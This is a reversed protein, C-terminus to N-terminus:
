EAPMMLLVDSTFLPVLILRRGADWGLDAPAPLGDAVTSITGDPAVRYIASGEWSSVILDGSETELLGDLGGTPLEAVDNREGDEDLVYVVNSGFTAVVAGDYAMSDLVGNPRDLDDTAITTLEGEASLLYVAASGTDEAGSDTFVIGSDSVLVQGDRTPALDNVFTAGPIEITGLQAGSTLNFRRVVTIDAVYLTDGVIAMGKPADLEVEPSEGDIWKLEIVAGDPAVRSIFGNGDQDTPSGNINAVLYVDAAADHLVSEPTAFGVGDIQVEAPAAEVEKEAAPARAEEGGNGCAALSLVALGCFLSRHLM